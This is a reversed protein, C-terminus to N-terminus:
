NWADHCCWDARKGIGSSHGYAYPLLFADDMDWYIAYAVHLHTEDDDSM